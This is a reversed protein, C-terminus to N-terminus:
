EKVNVCRPYHEAHVLQYENSFLSEDVYDTNFGLLYVIVYKNSCHQGNKHIGCEDTPPQGM